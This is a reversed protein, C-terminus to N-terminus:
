GNWQITTNLIYRYLRNSSIITSPAGREIVYLIDLHSCNFCSHQELRGEDAASRLKDLARHCLRRTYEASVKMRKGVDVFSM